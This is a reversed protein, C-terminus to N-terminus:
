HVFASISNDGVPVPAALKSAVFSQKAGTM